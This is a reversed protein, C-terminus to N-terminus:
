QQADYVERYITGITKNISAFTGITMLKMPLWEDGLRYPPQKYPIRRIRFGLRKYFCIRRFAYDNPHHPIEVELVTPCKSEELLTQLAQTGYGKGQQLKDIALHEIYIFDTFDWYTIAGVPTGQTTQILNCRFNKKTDTYQRQLNNNRREEQLFASQLLEEVFDYHPSSTNIPIINLM